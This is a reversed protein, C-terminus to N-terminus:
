VPYVRLFLTTDTDNLPPLSGTLPRRHRPQRWLPRHLLEGGQHQLVAPHGRQARGRQAVPEEGAPDRMYITTLVQHM